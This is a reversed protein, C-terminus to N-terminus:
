IYLFIGGVPVVNGNPKDTFFISFFTPKKVTAKNM